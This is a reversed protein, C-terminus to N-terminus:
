DGLPLSNAINVAKVVPLPLSILFILPFPLLSLTIYKSSTSNISPSGNAHWRGAAPDREAAPGRDTITYIDM